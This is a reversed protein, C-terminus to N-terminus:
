ATGKTCLFVPTVYFLAGRTQTEARAENEHAAAVLVAHEPVNPRVTPRTMKPIGCRRKIAADFYGRRRWDTAVSVWGRRHAVRERAHVERSRWPTQPQRKWATEAAPPPDEVEAFVSPKPAVVVGHPV